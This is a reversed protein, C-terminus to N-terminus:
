VGPYNVGLVVMHSDARIDNESLTASSIISVSDPTDNGANRFKDLLTHSSVQSTAYGSNSGTGTIVVSSAGGENGGSIMVSGSSRRGDFTASGIQHGTFNNNKSGDVFTTEYNGTVDDVILFADEGGGGGRADISNFYVMLENYKTTDVKMPPGTVVDVVEFTGVYEDSDVSTADLTNTTVTDANNIDESHLDVLQPPSADKDGITGVQNTGASATGSMAAGGILAAGGMKLADRRGPLMKAITAELTEIRNELEATDPDDTM